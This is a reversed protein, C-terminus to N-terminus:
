CSLDQQLGQLLDGWEKSKAIHRQRREKLTEKNFDKLAKLDKGSEKVM